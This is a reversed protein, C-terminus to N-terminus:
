LRRYVHKKRRGRRKSVQNLRYRKNEHDVVAKEFKRLLKPDIRISNDGSSEHGTRVYQLARHLRRVKIKTRRGRSKPSYKLGKGHLPHRKCGKVACMSLGQGIIDRIFPLSRSVVGNANGLKQFRRRKRNEAWALQKAIFLKRRNRKVVTALQHKAFVMVPKRIRFVRRRLRKREDHYLNADPSEEGDYRFYREQEEQEGPIIDNHHNACFARLEGNIENRKKAAERNVRQGRYKIDFRALYTALAARDAPTSGRRVLERFAHLLSNADRLLAESIQEDAPICLVWVCLAVGVVTVVGILKM